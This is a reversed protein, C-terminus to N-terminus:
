REKSTAAESRFCTLGGRRPDAFSITLAVAERRSEKKMGRAFEAPVPVVGYFPIAIVRGEFTPVRVAIRQGQEADAHYEKRINPLVFDEACCKSERRSEIQILLNRSPPAKREHHGDGRKTRGVAVIM